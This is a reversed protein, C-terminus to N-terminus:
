FVLDKKDPVSKGFMSLSSPFHLCVSESGLVLWDLTLNLWASLSRVGEALIPAETFIM